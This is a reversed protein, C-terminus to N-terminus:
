ANEGVTGVVRYPSHWSFALKKTKKEGRRVRFYQYVWVPDGEEFKAETQGELRRAHRDQAKILQREVM